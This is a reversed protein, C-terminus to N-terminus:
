RIMMRSFTYLFSTFIQVLLYVLLLWVWPSLGKKPNNQKGIVLLNHEEPHKHLYLKYFIITLISLTGDVIGIAGLVRYFMEGLVTSANDTFIIPLIMLIVIMMCIYNAYIVVDMYKEKNLAKSLIDAHLSAFGMVFYTQYLRWVTESLFLNWIGFISTFFSLVILCFLVNIFFGLREFTNQKEDDWIFILSVLSHIVVMALTFLVKGTIENFDGTLVTFAAVLGSIVLSGILTFIFIRKFEALLPKKTPVSPQEPATITQSYLNDAPQQTSNINEM